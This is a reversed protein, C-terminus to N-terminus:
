EAKESEEYEVTEVTSLFPTRCVCSFALLLNSCCLPFSNLSHYRMFSHTMGKAYEPCKAGNCLDYRGLRKFRFIDSDINYGHAGAGSASTMHSVDDSACPVPTSTINSVM